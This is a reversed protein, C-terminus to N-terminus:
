VDEIWTYKADTKMAAIAAATGEVEVISEAVDAGIYGIACFGTIGSDEGSLLDYNANVVPCIFRSRM